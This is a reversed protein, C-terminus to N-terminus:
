PKVEDGQGQVLTGYRNLPPPTFRERRGDPWHVVLRDVEGGKDLGFIVRPDSSSLYSGDAHVRRWLTVGDRRRLEVRAGYADRKGTLLRLGLWANSGGVTNLFVRLRGRSNSVVFDAAGDNDLDAVALGRGVESLGFAPGATSTADVFKGNRQNRFLQKRQKLPYPDRESRQSEISKVDGNAAIIDLWGDNDIDIFAAGFGTYPMSPVAIGVEVSSDEFLGEGRNVFMTSKERALHTMFVDETGNNDFDGVAIGM